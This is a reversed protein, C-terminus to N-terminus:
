RCIPRTSCRSRSAARRSRPARRPISRRSLRTSSVNGKLSSSVNAQTDAPWGSAGTTTVDAVDGSGSASGVPEDVVGDTVLFLFEMPKTSTAGNGPTPIISDMYHLATDYSTQTDRQNQLRLRSRYQRRADAGIISGNTLNATPAAITQVHRQVYLCGDPVPEASDRFRAGDLDPGTDGHAARRHPDHHQKRPSIIAIARITAPSRYAAGQSNFSISIVPLPAPHGGTM